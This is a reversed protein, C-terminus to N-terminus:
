KKYRKITKVLYDYGINFRLLRKLFGIKWKSAKLHSYFLWPHFLYYLLTYEPKAIFYDNFDSFKIDGFYNAIELTPKTLLYNIKKFSDFDKNPTIKITRNNFDKVFDIAGYQFNKIKYYDSSLSSDELLYEYKYFVPEINSSDIKFKKVSGHNGLFISEFIAISPIYFLESYRDDFLFGFKKGYNENLNNKRVGFYFGCLSCEIKNMSLISSIARQMNGHWGIDVIAVKDTDINEKFYKSIIDFEEKSNKIIIEKVEEFFFLFDAQPTKTNIIFDSCLNYKKFKEELDLDELGVSKIFTSLKIKDKYFISNNIDDFSNIRFLTPVILSRRSAYFYMNNSNPFIIDYAKKIIYGDRSLFLIKEINMKKINNNLWVCFNYLMIGFCEYGLKYFMDDNKKIRNNIFSNLYNEYLNKNTYFNINNNFNPILYANFGLKKPALYDSYKNDGIHLIENPQVDLDKLIYKFLNGSRKTKKIDSSLYIKEYKFIGNIKLIEKIFNISLYMDSTIIIKKNKKICKKYIDYVELNKTLVNKEINLEIKKIYELINKDYETPFNEYIENFTIEENISKKRVLKEAIVRDKVFNKPVSYINEKEMEKVMLLFVDTPLRVDRKLLTDFIDFSIINCDLLNLM